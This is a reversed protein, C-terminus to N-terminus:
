KVQLVLPPYVSAGDSTVAFFRAEKVDKLSSYPINVQFGGDYFEKQLDPRNTRSCLIIEDGVQVFIACPPVMEVFDAAWGSIYVSSGDQIASLPICHTQEINPNDFHIDVHQNIQNELVLGFAQGQLAGEVESLYLQLAGFDVTREVRELLFFDPTVFQLLNSIETLGCSNANIFYVESFTEALLPLMFSYIYSDGYILINKENKAQPNVYRFYRDQTDNALLFEVPESNDRQHVWGSKPTITYVYDTLDQFSYQIIKSNQLWALASRSEVKEIVIEDETFFSINPDESQITNMLAQYGVYMGYSNWHTVDNNKYYLVDDADTLSQKYDLLYSKTPVLSLDSHEKVYSTLSGFLGNDGSGVIYDPVVEPYIEEKNPIPMFFLKSGLQNAMVDIHELQEVMQVCQEETPQSLGQYNKLINDQFYLFHDGEGREYGSIALNDFLRYNAGIYFLTAEDKYGINDDITQEIQTLTNKDFLNQLTLDPMSATVKNQVLSTHGPQEFAILPITIIAFFCIITVIKRIKDGM